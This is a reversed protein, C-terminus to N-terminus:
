TCVALAWIKVQKVRRHAMNSKCCLKSFTCQMVGLIVKVYIHLTLTDMQMSYMVIFWKRTVAWKLSFHMLHGLIVRVKELQLTGM